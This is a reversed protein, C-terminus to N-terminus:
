KIIKLMGKSLKAKCGIPITIKDRLHTAKFNKAVPINYKTQIEDFIEDLWKKNDIELFDGLIIAKIHNRFDDINLLQTMMKDIKYAPENLDETFFIFDEQPIFDQGCLSVITSLNGGWIIGELDENENYEVEFELNEGKVAKFFSNITYESPNEEGFDSQALPGSYTILNSKKLMMLSLATIDSYGCFIKPNNRILDYDIDKILRIAGYGGRICIIAKVEPNKFFKHLERIKNEDTGALYRYRDFTNDSLIVKYGKSEFFYKARLINERDEFAGSTALLGITDGNKLFEPKLLNM